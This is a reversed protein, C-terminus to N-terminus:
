ARLMLSFSYLSTPESDPYNIRPCNNWHGLVIYPLIAASKKIWSPMFIWLVITVLSIKKLINMVFFDMNNHKYGKLYAGRTGKQDRAYNNKNWVTDFHLCLETRLIYTELLSLMGQTVRSMYEEFENFNSAAPVKTRQKQFNKYTKGPVKLGAPLKIMKCRM